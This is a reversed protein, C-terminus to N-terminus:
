MADVRKEFLIGGFEDEGILAYGVKQYFHQTRLNWKPTGLTWRRADPFRQEVLAMVQTGIGRNQHAPEIFIRGLEYHGGGKDFVIVGGIIRSDDDVIKYYVGVRMVKSQWKDSKYGPPGGIGPAGYNIDDEFAHKSILALAKADQPKARELRVM